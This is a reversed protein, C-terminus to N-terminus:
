QTRAYNQLMEEIMEGQTIGKRGAFDKLMQKSEPNMRTSLQVTDDMPLSDLIEGLTPEKEGVGPWMRIKHLEEIRPIKDVNIPPKCNMLDKKMKRVIQRVANRDSSTQGFFISCEKKPHKYHVEKKQSIFEFGMQELISVIVKLSKKHKGSPNYKSKTTIKSQRKTGIKVDKKELLGAKKNQKRQFKDWQTKKAM